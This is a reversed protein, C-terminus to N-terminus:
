LYRESIVRQHHIAHGIIIFGLSLVTVPATSAVGQRQLEEENLSRFLHESANRIMQFEELMDQYNRHDVRAAEAYANEDFSNLPTYDKRAFRLARYAFVREADTLHQLVQKVTWKGTAYAHDIKNEPMRGFFQLTAATQNTFATLIEDEPVQSVYTHYFPAYDQPSPRAM